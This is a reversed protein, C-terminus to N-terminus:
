MKQEAAYPKTDKTIVHGHNKHDCAVPLSERRVAFFREKCDRIRQGLTRAALRRDALVPIKCM